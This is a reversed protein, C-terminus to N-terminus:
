AKQFEHAKSGARVPWLHYAARGTRDSWHPKAMDICGLCRGKLMKEFDPLHTCFIKVFKPMSGVFISTTEGTLIWRIVIEPEM